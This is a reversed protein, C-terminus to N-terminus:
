TDCIDVSLFNLENQHQRYSSCQCYSATKWELDAWDTLGEGNGTDNQSGQFSDTVIVHNDKENLYLDRLFRPSGRLPIRFRRESDIRRINNTPEVNLGEQLLMELGTGPSLAAGAFDVKYHCLVIPNGEGSV